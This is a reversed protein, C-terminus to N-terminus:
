SLVWYTFRYVLDIGLWLLKAVAFFLFLLVSIVGLVYATALATIRM